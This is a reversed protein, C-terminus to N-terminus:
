DSIGRVPGQKRTKLFGTVLERYRRSTTIAVPKGSPELPKFNKNGNFFKRSLIICGAYLLLQSSLFVLRWWRTLARHDKFTFLLHFLFPGLEVQRIKFLGFNRGFFMGSEVFHVVVIDVAESVFLTKEPKFDELVTKSVANFGSGNNENINGVRAERSNRHRDIPMAM